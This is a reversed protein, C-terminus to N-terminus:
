PMESSGSPPEGVPAGVPGTIWALSTCAVGYRMIGFLPFRNESFIMSLCCARAGRAKQFFEATQKSNVADPGVGSARRVM